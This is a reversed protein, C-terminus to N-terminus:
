LEEGANQVPGNDMLEILEEENDGDNVDDNDRRDGKPQKIWALYECIKRILDPDDREMYTKQSIFNAMSESLRQLIDAPEMM